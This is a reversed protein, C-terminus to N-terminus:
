TIGDVAVSARTAIYRGYAPDQWQLELRWPPRNSASPGVVHALGDVHGSVLHGRAPDASACAPEFEVPAAAAAKTALTAATSPRRPQCGARSLWRQATRLPLCVGDVAVSDALAIPSTVAWGRWWCAKAQRRLRGVPRSWGQSCDNPRPAGAWLPCRDLRLLAMTSIRTRLCRGRRPLGCARDHERSGAALALAIRISWAWAWSCGPGAQSALVGRREAVIQHGGQQRGTTQPTLPHDDMGNSSLVEAGNRLSVEGAPLGHSRSGAWAICEGQGERWRRLM